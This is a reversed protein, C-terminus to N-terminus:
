FLSPFSALKNVMSQLTHLHSRLPTTLTLQARSPPRPPLPFWRLSLPAVLPLTAFPPCTGRPAHAVRASNKVALGEMGMGGYNDGILRAAAVRQAGGRNIKIGHTIYKYNGTSLAKIRNKTPNFPEARTLPESVQRKGRGALRSKPNKRAFWRKM